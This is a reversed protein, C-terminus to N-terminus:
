QIEDRRWDYETESNFADLEVKLRDAELEVYPDPLRNADAAAEAELERVLESFTAEYRAMVEDGVIQGGVKAGLVFGWMAGCCGSLVLFLMLSWLPLADGRALTFAGLLIGFSLVGLSVLTTWHAVSVTVRRETAKVEDGM